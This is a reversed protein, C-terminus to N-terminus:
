KLRFVASDVTYSTFVGLGGHVNSYAPTPESFPGMRRHYDNLSKQYLYNSKELMYIYIVVNCSDFDMFYNIGTDTDRIFKKGDLNKDSVLNDEILLPLPSYNPFYHRSFGRGEARLMYYNEEGPIDQVSIRIDMRRKFPDWSNNQPVSFTDAEITVSQKKPIVCTSEATMGLDSQIRIHYTGGYEVPMKRHDFKLGYEFTDLPIEEKGDSISGSLNGVPLDTQTDGYVPWNSSIKIYTVTDSPTMFCGLVLKQRFEPLDVNNAVKECGTALVLLSVLLLYQKTNQM